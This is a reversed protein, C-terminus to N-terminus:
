VRDWGAYTLDDFGNWVDELIIRKGEDVILCAADEGYRESELLFLHVTEPKGIVDPDAKFYGDDIVYWMGRHGGIKIGDSSRSLKEIM